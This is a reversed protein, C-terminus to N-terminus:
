IYKKIINEICTFDKILHNHYIETTNKETHAEHGFLLLDRGDNRKFIRKHM